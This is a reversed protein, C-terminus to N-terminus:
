RREVPRSVGGATLEYVTACGFRRVQVVLPGLLPRLDRRARCDALVFAAGSRRVLARAQPAPMRGAFLRETRAYRQPFDPTWSPHAIYTHRGTHGPVAQGLYLASLVPGDRPARDLYGLAAAEGEDLYTPLSATALTAHLTKGAKVLGPVTLVVLGAVLVAMRLPTGLRIRVALVALPLSIGSFAHYIFSHQLAAFTALAAVPWALLMVEAADLSRRRREFAGILAPIALPALAVAVWRWYHAPHLLENGRMWSPDTRSLVVYYVLPAATALAPGALITARRVSRSWVAVALLIGLLTIGQWPHLWSAVLGALAAAAGYFRARRGPARRDPELLREVALVFVPMLGVAIAIHFYGWLSMAPSMFYALGRVVGQGTASGLHGWELLPYAPTVFFLGLALAALRRGPEDVMRRVYALFGGYLVLLALPKLLLFSLQIGLGLRWALGSLLWLPNLWVADSPAVDM